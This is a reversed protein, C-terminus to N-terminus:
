PAEKGYERNLEEQIDKVEQFWYPAYLKERSYTKNNLESRKKELFEITVQKWDDVIVVPLDEYLPNLTSSKVIPYCGMLLAEWTRHCDLGIGPPSVVFVTDSLDLLYDEFSKRGEFKIGMKQFHESCDARPPCPTYNIYILISKGKKTLSFPILQGLVNTDANSWGSALGIPIPRLKKSPARDINQVFWAAIKEDELLHGFPGPLPSDSGYGYNATILIFPNQIKPLYDRYFEELRMYDVFVTDGLKVMKPDFNEPSSFYDEGLLRWNSFSSWTYGSLYPYSSEAQLPRWDIFLGGVCGSTYPFGLGEQTSFLSHAKLFFAIFFYVFRIMKHESTEM